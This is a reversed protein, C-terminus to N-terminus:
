YTPTGKARGHGCCDVLRVAAGGGGGGGAGGGGGGQNAGESGDGDDRGLGGGGGGGGGVGGSAGPVDINLELVERVLFRESVHLEFLNMVEGHQAHNSERKLHEFTRARHHRKSGHPTLDDAHLTDFSALSHVADQVLVAAQWVGMQLNGQEHESSSMELAMAVIRILDGRLNHHSNAIKIAAEQRDREKVTNFLVPTQALHAKLRGLPDDPGDEVGTRPVRGHLAATGRQSLAHADGFQGPLCLQSALAALCWYRQMARDNLAAKVDLLSALDGSLPYPTM